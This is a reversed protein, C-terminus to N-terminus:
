ERGGYTQGGAKGSKMEGIAREMETISEGPGESNWRRGNWRM